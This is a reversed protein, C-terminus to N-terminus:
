LQAGNGTVDVMLWEMVGLGGPCFTCLYLGNGVKQVGWFNRKKGVVERGQRGRSSDGGEERRTTDPRHLCM